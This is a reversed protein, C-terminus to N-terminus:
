MQDHLANKSGEAQGAMIKLRKAEMEAVGQLEQEKIARYAEHRIEDGRYWNIGGMYVMHDRMTRAEERAMLRRWLRASSRHRGIRGTRFISKEGSRDAPIYINQGRYM